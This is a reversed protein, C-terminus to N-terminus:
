TTASATPETPITHTTVAAAAARDVARPERARFRRLLVVLLIGAAAMLAM